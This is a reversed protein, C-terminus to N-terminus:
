TMKLIALLKNHSVLDFAMKIISLIYFFMTILTEVSTHKLIVERTGLGARFGFQTESLREELKQYIGGCIM